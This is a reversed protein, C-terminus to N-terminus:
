YNERLIYYVISIIIIFIILFLNLNYIELLKIELKKIKDTLDFFNTDIKLLSDKQLNLNYLIDIYNDKLDLLNKELQIQNNM